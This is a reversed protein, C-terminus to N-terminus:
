FSSPRNDRHKVSDTSNVNTTTDVTNAVTPKSTMTATTNANSNVVFHTFGPFAMNQPAKASFRQQQKANYAAREAASLQEILIRKAYYGQARAIAAFKMEQETQPGLAAM